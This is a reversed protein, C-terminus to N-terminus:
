IVSFCRWLLFPHVMALPVLLPGRASRRQLRSADACPRQPQADRAAMRKRGNLGSADGFFESVSTLLRVSEHTLCM